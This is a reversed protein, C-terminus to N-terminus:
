GHVINKADGVVVINDRRCRAARVNAHELVIITETNEIMVAVNLVGAQALLPDIM